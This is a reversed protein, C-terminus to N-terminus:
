DEQAIGVLTIDDALGAWGVIGICKIVQQEWVSTLM